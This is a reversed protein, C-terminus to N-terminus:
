LPQKTYNTYSLRLKTLVDLLKNQLDELEVEEEKESDSITEMEGPRSVQPFSHKPAFTPYFTPAGSRIDEEKRDDVSIILRENTKTVDAPISIDPEIPDIGVSKSGSHNEDDIEGMIPKNVNDLMSTEKNATPVIHNYAKDTM